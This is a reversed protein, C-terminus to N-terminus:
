LRPSGSCHTSVWHLKPAPSASSASYFSPSAPPQSLSALPTGQARRPQIVTAWRGYPLLAVAATYLAVPRAALGPDSGEAYHGLALFCWVLTACPAWADLARLLPIRKWLLWLATAVAAALLGSATLSPVTLLLM